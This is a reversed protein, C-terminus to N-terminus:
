LRSVAMSSVPNNQRDGQDSSGKARAAAFLTFWPNRNPALEECLLHQQCFQQCLLDFRFSSDLNPSLRVKAPGQQNMLRNQCAFQVQIHLVRARSQGGHQM